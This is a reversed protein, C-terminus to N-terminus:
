EPLSEEREGEDAGYGKGEQEEELGEGATGEDELAGSEVPEDTSFDTTAV